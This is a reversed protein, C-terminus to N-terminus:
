SPKTPWDSNALNPWNSHTPLDRLAQRYTKMTDSMTVDSLAYFDTETLLNNRIARNTDAKINDIQTKYEADKTAKDTGSYRDEEKWKVVWNGKSDQEIGDRSVVKTVASPAPAPTEFIAKYGLNEIIVTTPVTPFSTNPNDAKIGSWTKTVKNTEHYYEAM